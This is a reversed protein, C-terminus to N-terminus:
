AKLKGCGGCVHGEHTRVIEIEGCTCKDESTGPDLSEVEGNLPKRHGFRRIEDTYDHDEVGCYSCTGGKGGASEGIKVERVFETGCNSCTYIMTYTEKTTGKDTDIPSLDDPGM